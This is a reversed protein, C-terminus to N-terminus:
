SVNTKQVCFFSFDKKCVMYLHHYLNLIITLSELLRAHWMAVLPNIQFTECISLPLLPVLLFFLTFFDTSAIIQLYLTIKHFKARLATKSCGGPDSGMIKRIMEIPRFNIFDSNM